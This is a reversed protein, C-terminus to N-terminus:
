MQKRRNSETTPLEDDQTLSSFSVLQKMVESEVNTFNSYADKVDETSVSSVTAASRKWSAVRSRQRHHKLIFASLACSVEVPIEDGVVGYNDVSTDVVGHLRIFISEELQSLDLVSSIRDISDVTRSNKVHAAVGSLVMNSRIEDSKVSELFVYWGYGVSSYIVEGRKYHVLLEGESSADDPEKSGFWTARDVYESSINIWPKKFSEGM